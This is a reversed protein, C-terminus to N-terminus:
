KRGNKVEQIIKRNIGTVRSIQNVCTGRIELIKIIDEKIYNKRIRQMNVINDIKLENYIINILQEDTLKTMEEELGNIKDVIPKVRKVEKESYSKFIKNLISM